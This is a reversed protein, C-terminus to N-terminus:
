VSIILQASQLSGGDPPSYDKIYLKWTGNANTGTFANTLNQYVNTYFFNNNDPGINDMNTQPATYNIYSGSSYGDWVTGTPSLTVVANVAVNNDGYRGSIITYKTKDPAYLVMGVDQVYTHSYGILKFSVSSVTGINGVTFTVPYVSAQGSTPITINIQDSNITYTIVPTWTSGNITVGSALPTYFSGPLKLNRPVSQVGATLTGVIYLYNASINKVKLISNRVPVSGSTQANVVASNTIINGPNKLKQNNM